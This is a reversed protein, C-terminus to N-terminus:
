TKVPVKTRMLRMTVVVVKDEVLNKLSGDQDNFVWEVCGMESADMVSEFIENAVFAHRTEQDLEWYPNSGGSEQLAANFLQDINQISPPVRMREALVLVGGTKISCAM